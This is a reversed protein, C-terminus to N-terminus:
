LLSSLTFSISLVDIVDPPITILATLAESSTANYNTFINNQFIDM